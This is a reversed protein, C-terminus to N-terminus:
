QTIIEGSVIKQSIENIEALLEAGLKVENQDNEEFGAFGDEIGYSYKEGGKLTGNTIKTLVDYVSLDNAKKVTLIVADPALPAIDGLVVCSKGSDKVVKMAGEGSEGCVAVFLIDCGEAYLETAMQEGVEPNYGNGIYKNVIETTTGKQEDAYKVGKAFGYELPQASTNQTGCLFGVKHAESKVATVYGAIFASEEARITASILNSAGSIDFPDELCAFISDPNQNAKEILKSNITGNNNIYVNYGEAVIPDIIEDALTALPVQFNAIAIGSDASFKEAGDWLSINSSDKFGSDCLLFAIKFEKDLVPLEAETVNETVDIVTDTNPKCGTIMLTFILLVALLIIISKKM